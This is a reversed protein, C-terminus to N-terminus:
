SIRTVVAVSHQHSGELIRKDGNKCLSWTNSIHLFHIEHLDTEHLFVQFSPGTISKESLAPRGTLEAHKALKRIVVSQEKKDTQEAASKAATSSNSPQPSALSVM